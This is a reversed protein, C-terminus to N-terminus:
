AFVGFKLYTSGSVTKQVTGLVTKEGEEIREGSSV